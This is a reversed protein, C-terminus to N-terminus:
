TTQSQLYSLRIGNSAESEMREIEKELIVKLSVTLGVFQYFLDFYAMGVFAGNALYGILGLLTGDAYNAFFGGDPLAKSKRKISLLSLITSSILGMYVFFGPFGMEGLVEFYISHVDTYHEPNPAYKYITEPTFARLGGGTLPRDNAMNWSAHWANIRGMASGDLEYYKITEMKSFWEDPVFPLSVLGIFVFFLVFLVKKKVRMLLVCSTIGMALAAGRSDTLVITLPSVWFLLWLVSKLWKREENRAMVLFVPWVMNIALGLGNNGEFFTDPPGFVWGRGGRLGWIAGKLSYFGISLVVIWYLHRLHTRTKILSVTVMIMILIKSFREWEETFGGPNLASFWGFSALLWLLLILVIERNLPLQRDGKYFLCGLLTAIAIYFAVPLNYAFSWTLRHPNLYGFFAFAFVGYVPNSIGAFCGTLVMLFVITDRIAM